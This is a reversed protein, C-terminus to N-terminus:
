YNVSYPIFSPCKLKVCDAWNLGQKYKSQSWLIKLFHNQSILKCKREEFIKLSYERWRFAEIIFKISIVKMHQGKCVRWRKKIVYNYSSCIRSLNSSEHLKIQSLAISLLIYKANRFFEFCIWFVWDKIKHWSGWKYCSKTYNWILHKRKLHFHM